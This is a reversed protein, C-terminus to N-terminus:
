IYDDDVIYVEHLHDATVNKSYINMRKCQQVAEDPFKRTSVLLYM